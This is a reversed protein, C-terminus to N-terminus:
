KAGDLDLIREFSRTGNGYTMRVPGFRGGTGPENQGSVTLHMYGTAGPRAEIVDIFGHAEFFASFPEDQGSYPLLIQWQKPEAPALRTIEVAPTDPAKAPLSAITRDLAAAEPADVPVADRPDLRLEGSLPICMTGCVAFDIKLDLVFADGTRKAAIPLIVAHKYGLAKGGAGDDFRSPFPFSLVPAELGSSASFDFSPPVGSDGANRWYTKFDPTLRIELGAKLMGDPSNNREALLRIRTEKFDLWRSAVVEAAAPQIGVAALILVLAFPRIARRFMMAALYADLQELGM